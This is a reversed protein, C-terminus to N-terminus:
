DIWKRANEFMRLWPSREQWDAPHWSNQIARFVREPHPMMITVRGSEDCIGAASNESGNPNHPYIESTDGSYDVYQMAINTTKTISDFKAKGEGHAIAIPMISGEMGSFFISKSNNIKVGTLRAEFQESTNKEFSPWGESGPIISQLNSIMQCGNCVGLTFSDTRLFYDSFEDKALSNLLISNAWGRGAGLVDGYSFGGCAALGKFNSLSIKGSLIQSMHVDTAEFGAQTFAAAMEIHGNVGQERLIAIKPKKGHNLYPASISENLDFTPSVKLGSSDKLIENNESEVCVPNDRLKAIEYSTSSWKKHLNKRKDQFVVVNEQYIYIEDTPNVKAIRKSYTKLGIEDLSALVKDTNSTPVQIICGLEENFLEPLLNSTYIDLGCHSAFAMELLSILAGGDSRDHYATILSEKNFANILSFFKSFLEPNDLDPADSGIQNFVQALCSGGMRNKGLGLDVLFLESEIETDLLPTIQLRTDPTKSFASIILSLPATVSKNKGDENWSSRMSMSDKGVPITLGLEPCLEMGISKVAEYLKADEGPHGSACMWNASLNIHKIDEIYASMLNTLSEGVTMRAAAAANILSLPTKEGISMAEGQYGTFDSLSIACDAVPVQWPGIMQDRAILGTVSRDAITILFSKSAITPLALLRNIADSISINSANFAKEANPLTVVDKHTKPSSGFLLSMELDIPKNEFYSDELTLHRDDTASGLIAYPAREKTCIEDFLDISKEKIAIVYREQSENCWIELPSMKKEDNPISRLQLKAGKKSDNVLEPIGNSLGGAGIDHISVIPNSNGLNACASIVEQTRRQMEPNARQVSAFDLDENQDGSGVSSAAGGGLGILMAPGGLVIIKDGNSIVGKEVHNEKINGIGGALMIPKHYGRVEENFTQQEYTRFYGCTNPRGFENNFSAAGIPADIMIDLASAIQTPKGYDKEWDHTLNPIKLNSVSFGCLGAKPKSGRGTAGEDRIEGGSGTAAGPDPAIATPHNHTEVKMLVAKQATTTKYIGEENPEFYNSKYGTMVASNDSYVSLLGDPNQHYTNKIMGFLSVAQKESDITWDANFIKHRCHESNAQAFMMLEIDRPNRELRTFRDFLYNIESDSLALGLEINAKFIASEGNNLIDISNFNRPKLENFLLKSEEINELYSETMKDMVFELIAKLEKDNTRRNFHYTIGREVRKIDSLGCLKCIESAKSSWPSITGIRPSITIQFNSNSLNAKPAYNLLNDLTSKNSTNLDQKSEIFHIYESSVLEIDPILASIKKNLTKVKFNRLAQIGTHFSIM